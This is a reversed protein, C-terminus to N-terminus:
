LLYRLQEPTFGCRSLKSYYRPDRNIVADIYLNIRQLLDADKIGDEKKEAYEKKLAILQLLNEKTVTKMRAM